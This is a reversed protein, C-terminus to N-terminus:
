VGLALCSAVHCMSPPAGCRALLAGALTSRRQCAAIRRMESAGAVARPFVRSPGHSVHVERPASRALMVTQVTNSRTAVTTRLMILRTPPYHHLGPYHHM